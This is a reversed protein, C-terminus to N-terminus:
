LATIWSRILGTEGIEYIKGSSLVELLSQGEVYELVFGDRTELEAYFAPIGSHRAKSLLVAEDHLIRGRGEKATKMAYVNGSAKERVCYVVASGGHGIERLVEFDGRSATRIETNDM